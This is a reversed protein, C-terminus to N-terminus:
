PKCVRYAAGLVTLDAKQGSSERQLSLMMGSGVGRDHAAGRVQDSHAEQSAMATSDKARNFGGSIFPTGPEKMEEVVV